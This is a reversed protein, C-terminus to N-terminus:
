RDVVDVLRPANELDAGGAQRGLARRGILQRRQGVLDGAQERREGLPLHEQDVVDVEVAADGRRRAVRDDGDSTSITAAATSRAAGRSRGFAGDIAVQAVGGIRVALDILRNARAVDVRAGAVIFSCRSRAREDDPM